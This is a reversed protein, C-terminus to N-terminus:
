GPHKVNSVMEKKQQVTKTGTPAFAPKRPTAPDTALISQVLPSKSRKPTPAFLDQEMRPLGLGLGFRPGSPVREEPVAGLKRPTSSSERRSAVRSTTPTLFGLSPQPKRSPTRPVFPVDLDSWEKRPPSSGSSSRSSSLPSPPFLPSDSGSSSSSTSRPTDEPQLYFYLFEICKM